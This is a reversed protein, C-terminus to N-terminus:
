ILAKKQAAPAANYATQFDGIESSAVVALISNPRRGSGPALIWSVLVSTSSQICSLSVPGSPSTTVASVDNM